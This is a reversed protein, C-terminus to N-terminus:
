LAKAYVDCVYESAISIHGDADYVGYSVYEFSFIPLIIVNGCNSSTLKSDLDQLPVSLPSLYSLSEVRGGNFLSALISSINDPSSDSASDIGVSIKSSM